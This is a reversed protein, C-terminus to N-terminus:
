GNSPVEYVIATRPINDVFVQETGALTVPREDLLPGTDCLDCRAFMDVRRQQTSPINYPSDYYHDSPLPWLEVRWKVKSATDKVVVVVPITWSTNLLLQRLTLNGKPGM